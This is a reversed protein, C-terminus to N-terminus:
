QDEVQLTEKWGHGLLCVFLVFLCVFLCYLRNLNSAQPFRVSLCIQVMHVSCTESSKTAGGGGHAASAAAEAAPIPPTLSGPHSVQVFRPAGRLLIRQQRRIQVSQPHVFDEAASADAAYTASCLLFFLQWAIVTRLLM